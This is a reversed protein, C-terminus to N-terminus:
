RKALLTYFDLRSLRTPGFHVRHTAVVPESSDGAAAGTHPNVDFHPFNSGAVELRLAHGAVFRNATPFLQVRVRYMAGPAMLEVRDFSNRFRLRLVGHTLNMAYGEPYDASPPHVDILKLMIDGDVATSSVWLEASVPGVVVLEETLAPTEFVVVDDRNALPGESRAEGGYLAATQRQDFAGAEMVPAGSATAGGITPVPNMPDSIISAFGAQEAPRYALARDALYLSTRASEEPPWANGRIWLGGHEMRGAANRHGSGGGMVFLTVPSHLVDPAASMQLASDFWQARLTVYDPALNGDLLAQEGFDVDGAYSVSRQGHTWPGMILRMASNKIGSLATFNETATLAYPDYWSSLFVTPVDPFREYAGRAYLGPRTWFPGFCENAWQEVIYAEYEPAAKLPSRGTQWPNVRVWKRIDEAELAARRAPDAATRPSLRAHKFAWTLQKLEFAGGQRIGSHYASSFGGSDIWMAGIGEPGLSAMATQTHASYSLGLTGVRGNCWPQDRIWNLTDVGDEGENVYKTFTGESGYRGRCDQLVYVYGRDAFRAAVLPKSLPVPEAASRDAHNTGRRDYPTRELLVPWPGEGEPLYVDAVLHVDDRMVIHVHELIRAAPVSM